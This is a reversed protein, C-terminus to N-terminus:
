SYCEKLCTNALSALLSFSDFGSVNMKIIEGMDERGRKGYVLNVTNNQIPAAYNRIANVRPPMPWRNQWAIVADNYASTGPLEIGPIAYDILDKGAAVLEDSRGTRRTQLLLTLLENLLPSRSMTRALHGITREQVQTLKEMEESKDDRGGALWYELAIALDQLCREKELNFGAFLSVHYPEM